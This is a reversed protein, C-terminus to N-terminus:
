LTSINPVHPQHPIFSVLPERRTVVESQTKEMEKCCRGNGVLVTMLEGAQGASPSRTMFSFQQIVYCPHLVETSVNLCEKLVDSAIIALILM